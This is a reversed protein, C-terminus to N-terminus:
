KKKITPNNGVREQVSNIFQKTNQIEVLKMQWHLAMEKEQEYTTIRNYEGNDRKVIEGPIGVVTSNEPIDKLVVSSAGIKSNDGIKIPGLVKAGSSITVNSGVTPHRKGVDKGTGGLTAGHYITVNDGVEATEGIVVGMGHDIFIGKGLKAAPHIEVGTLFRSFYAIGKSLFVLKKSYLWHTVRHFMLAQFGPYFFIVEMISNAAPDREIVAKLDCKIEKFM